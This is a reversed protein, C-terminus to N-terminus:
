AQGSARHRRMSERVSILLAAVAGAIFAQMLVFLMGKPFVYAWMFSAEFAALLGLICWLLATTPHSTRAVLVILPMLIPFAVSMAGCMSALCLLTALLLITRALTRGRRNMGQWRHVEITPLPSRGPNM